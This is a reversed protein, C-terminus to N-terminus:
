RLVGVTSCRHSVFVSGDGLLARVYEGDADPTVTSVSRVSVSEDDFVEVALLDGGRLEGARCHEWVLGSWEAVEGGTM